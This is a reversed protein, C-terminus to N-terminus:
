ERFYHKFPNFFAAHGAPIHNGFWLVEALLPPVGGHFLIRCGQRKRFGFPHFVRQRFQQSGSGSFQDLHGGLRLKRLEQFPKGM